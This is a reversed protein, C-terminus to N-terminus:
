ALLNALPALAFETVAAAVLTNGTHIAILTDGTFVSLGGTPSANSSSVSGNSPYVNFTYPGTSFVNGAVNTGTYVINGVALNASLNAGNNARILYTTINSTAGTGPTTVTFTTGFIVGNAPATFIPYAGNGSTVGSSTVHPAGVIETFFDHITYQPDNYSVSKVTTNALPSQSYAM